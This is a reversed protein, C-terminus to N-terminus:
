SITFEFSVADLRFGAVGKDMYFKMVKEMEEVVKGNRYNLDPQQPSFQHLYFQQREESWTWAPGGFVSVWNNPPGRVGGDFTANRWVYYDRFDIEDNNSRIFWEHM